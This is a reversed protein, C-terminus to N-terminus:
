VKIGSTIIRPPHLMITQDINSFEEFFVEKCSQVSYRYYDGPLDHVMYTPTSNGSEAGVYGPVGIVMLGGISLVRRMESISKWFYKDHELTANSLVVDFSGEEYMDMDNSDGCVMQITSNSQIPKLNLGVRNFVGKFVKSTLLSFNLDAGIELVNEMIEPKYISILDEFKKFIEPHM